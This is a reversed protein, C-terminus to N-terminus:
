PQTKPLFAADPLVDALGTLIRHTVTQGSTYNESPSRLHLFDSRDVPLAIRVSAGNRRHNTVTVSGGHLEAIGWVIFLGLNDNRSVLIEEAGTQRNYLSGLQENSFGSGNDDVILQVRSGKKTLRINITSGPRSHHLSNSILNLMLHELLEPDASIPMIDDPCNLKIEIGAHRCSLSVLAVFEKLWTDIKISTPRYVTKHTVLRDALELNECSRLLKYYSHYLVSICSEFAHNETATAQSSLQELALRIKSLELRMGTTLSESSFSYKTPAFNLRLLLLGSYWVGSASVSRQGIQATSVFVNEDCDLFAGPLIGSARQGEEINPFLSRAAPNFFQILGGSIGIVPASDPDFLLNISYALENM